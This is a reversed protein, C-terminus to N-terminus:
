GLLRICKYDNEKTLAWVESGFSRTPVAMARYFKLLTDRVMDEKKLTRLSRGCMNQFRSTKKALNYNYNYRTDCGLYNFVKM